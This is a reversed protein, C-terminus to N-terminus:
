RRAGTESVGLRPSPPPPAQGFRSDHAMGMEYALCFLSSMTGAWISQLDLEPENKRITNMADLMVEALDYIADSDIEREDLWDRAQPWREQCEALKLSIERSGIM